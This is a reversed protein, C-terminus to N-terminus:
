ERIQNRVKKFEDIIRSAHFYGNLSLLVNNGDKMNIVVCKNFYDLSIDHIDDHSIHRTKFNSRYSKSFSSVGHRVVIKDSQFQVFYTTSLIFAFVMVSTCTLMVIRKWGDMLFCGFLVGIFILVLLIILLKIPRHKKM